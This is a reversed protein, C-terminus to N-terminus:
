RRPVEGFSLEIGSCRREVVRVEGLHHHVLVPV